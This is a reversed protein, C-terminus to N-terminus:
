GARIQRMFLQTAFTCCAADWICGGREAYCCRRVSNDREDAIDDGLAGVVVCGSGRESAAAMGVVDPLTLFGAPLPAKRARTSSVGRCSSRACASALM